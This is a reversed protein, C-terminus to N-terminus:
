VCAGNVTVCREDIGEKTITIDITNAPLSGAINQPWEIIAVGGSSLYEDFGLEILESEDEIRYMDFHFVRVDKGDYENVVTFTPSTVYDTVGLGRCLGQTFVTKGAGMEGYLCIVTGGAIQKALSEAL